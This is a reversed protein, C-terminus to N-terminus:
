EYSFGVANNLVALFPKSFHLVKTGGVSISGAAKGNRDSSRAPIEIKVLNFVYSFDRELKGM